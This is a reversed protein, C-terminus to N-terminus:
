YHRVGGNAAPQLPAMEPKPETAGAVSILNLLQDVRVELTGVKRELNQVQEGDAEGSTPQGGLSRLVASRAFESISRAGRELCVSKLEDFEAESLRFNVLRNRPNLVSMPKKPGCEQSWTM